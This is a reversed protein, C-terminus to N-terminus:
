VRITDGEALVALVEETNMSRATEEMLSITHFNPAELSLTGTCSIEMGEDWLRELWLHVMATEM